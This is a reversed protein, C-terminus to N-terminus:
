SLTTSRLSDLATSTTSGLAFGHVSPALVAYDYGTFLWIWVANSTLANSFSTWLSKQAAASTATDGQSLLKQLEASSYGAPVGLNAGTGFYRGYMTYPNPDASNWAFAAQFKGKLWDQIYANEALNQINMTIGVKALDSQVVTAQATSTADLDSSTVATFSFGKPDGAKQLYSKAMGDNTTPCVASVPNSAYQGLPV